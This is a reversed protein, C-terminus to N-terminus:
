GIEDPARQLFFDPDDFSSPIFEDYVIQFQGAAFSGLRNDSRRARSQIQVIFGRRENARRRKTKRRTAKM